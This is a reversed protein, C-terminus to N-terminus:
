LCLVGFLTLGNLVAIATLSYPHENLNNMYGLVSAALAIFSLFIVPSARFLRYTVDQDDFTGKLEKRLLYDEGVFFPTRAEPIAIFDKVIFIYRAGNEGYVEIDSVIREGAQNVESGYNPQLKVATHTVYICPGFFCILLEFYLFFCIVSFINLLKYLRTRKFRQLRVHARRQKLAIIDAVEEPTLPNRRHRRIHDQPM